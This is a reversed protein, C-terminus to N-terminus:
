YLESNFMGLMIERGFSSISKIKGSKKFISSLLMSLLFHLIALGMRFVLIVQLGIITTMSIQESLIMSCYAKLFSPHNVPVDETPNTRNYKHKPPPTATSNDDGAMKHCASRVLSGELYHSDPHM